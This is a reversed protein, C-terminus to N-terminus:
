FGETYRIASLWTKFSLRHVGSTIADAHRLRATVVRPVSPPSTLQYHFRSSVTHTCWIAMHRFVHFVFGSVWLGAFHKTGMPGM